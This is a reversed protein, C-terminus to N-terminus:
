IYFILSTGLSFTTNGLIGIGLSRPHLFYVHVMDISSDWQYFDNGKMFCLLPYMFGMERGLM